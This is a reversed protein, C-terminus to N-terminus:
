QLTVLIEQGRAAGLIQAAPKQNACVELFGHSGSVTFTDGQGQAYNPAHGGVPKGGVTVQFAKSGLKQMFNSLDVLTVNTILNGFRDVHVVIGKVSKGEAAPKPTNIRAYDEIPEGFDESAYSKSLYAACAAFIDRGHFTPSVPQRFYHTAELVRM